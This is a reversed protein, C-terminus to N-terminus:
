MEFRQKEVLLPEALAAFSLVTALLLVLGRLRGLLMSM